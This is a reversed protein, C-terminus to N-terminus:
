PQITLGIGVLALHNHMGVLAWNKIRDNVEVMGNISFSKTSRLNYCRM